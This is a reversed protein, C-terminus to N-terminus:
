TVTNSLEFWLKGLLSKDRSQIKSRFHALNSNKSKGIRFVIMHCFGEKFAKTLIMGFATLHCIGGFNKQSLHCQTVLM